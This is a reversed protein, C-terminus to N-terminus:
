CVLTEQPADSSSANNDDDADVDVVDSPPNFNIAIGMMLHLAWCWLLVPCLSQDVIDGFQPHVWVIDVVVDM